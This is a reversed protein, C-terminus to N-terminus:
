KYNDCHKITYNGEIFLNHEPKRISLNITKKENIALGRAKYEKQLKMTM